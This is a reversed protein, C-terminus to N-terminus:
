IIIFDVLIIYGYILFNKKIEVRYLQSLPVM